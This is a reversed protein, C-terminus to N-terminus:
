FSSIILAVFVALSAISMVLVASASADKAFKVSPHIEPHLLDLAQELATNFLEAALVGGITLTIIAWWVPSPRLFLLFVLVLFAASLQIKFNTQTEFTPGFGSVAHSLSKIFRRVM